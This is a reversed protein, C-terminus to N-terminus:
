RFLRTRIPLLAAGLGNPDTRIESVILKPAPWPQGYDDLARPKAAQALRKRLDLPAEGGVVIAAPDMIGTLARLMQEFAPTVRELWRELIPWDPDYQAKLQKVSSIDMGEAQMMSILVRLSPRRAQEEADYVSSVEAANRNHGIHPRGDIVLGGGFGLNVSLYAFNDFRRGAGAWYEAEAGLTANNGAVVPYPTIEALFTSPNITRWSALEPPTIFVDLDDRHYGQMSLGIGAVREKPLKLAEIMEQLASKATKRVGKVDDPAADLTQLSLIEGVLNTAILRVDETDIAIGLGFAGEPNLALRPSPKGRGVIKPAELRLLAKDLLEEALRHVSQQSLPTLGTLEARAVLGKRRVADLILAGSAGISFISNNAALLDAEDAM